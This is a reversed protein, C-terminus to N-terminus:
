ITMGLYFCKLSGELNYCVPDRKKLARTFIQLVRHVESRLRM